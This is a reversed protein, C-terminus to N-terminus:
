GTRLSMFAPQDPSVARGTLGALRKGYYALGYGVRGVEGDSVVDVGADAQQRLVWEVAGPLKASLAAVDLPTGSRMSAAALERLEPPGDLRGAHTTLIRGSSRKM